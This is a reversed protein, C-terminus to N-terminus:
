EGFMEALIASMKQAGDGSLHDTDMFDRPEFLDAGNFDVFHVDEPTSDVLELVGARMEPMVFRQYEPTFPPVVVVPLVGYRHLFRIFARFVQLNEAFSERHQYLRNHEEARCRGMAEQESPSLQAWTRGKLDFYSGRPRIHSYYTGLELLKEAAARECVARVAEPVEGFGEWPDYRGPADWHRADGLIPYYVRSIVSERAYKSRSLDQYAIYYGMVIFCKEFRGRGTSLIGRRACQFDYYLDQSHMSCNVAYRWAGEQIGNLAHSSGVILTSGEPASACKDLMARLYLYDYNRLLFNEFIKDVSM